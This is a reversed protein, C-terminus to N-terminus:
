ILVKYVILCINWVGPFFGVFILWFTVGNKMRNPLDPIRPAILGWALLLVSAIFPFQLFHPNSEILGISLGIMTSGIDLCGAALIFILFTKTKM